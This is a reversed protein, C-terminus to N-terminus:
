MSTEIVRKLNEKWDKQYEGDKTNNKSIAMVGQNQMLEDMIVKAAELRYEMADHKGTDRM